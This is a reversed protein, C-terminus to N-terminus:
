VIAFFVPFQKCDAQLSLLVASSDSWFTTMCDELDLERKLVRALRVADLAAELKLQLITRKGDDALLYKGTLINCDIGGDERAIRMYCVCGRAYSSADCFFYLQMGLMEGEFMYCRPIRMDRLDNLRGCWCKWKRRMSNTCLEDWDQKEQCVYRYLLRVELVVPALFGLPNYLSINVSLLTRKTLPKDPIDM